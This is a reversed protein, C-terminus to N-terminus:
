VGGMLKRSFFTYDYEAGAGSHGGRGSEHYLVKGGLDSLKAAFKRGGAVHVRDDTRSTQVFMEPYPTGASLNDYPSYTRMIRRDEPDNADGVQFIDIYGDLRQSSVVDLVPVALVVARYLEPRQLAAAGVVTGGASGGTIGLRRPSTIGRAILDESVAIFDDISNQRNRGSGADQWEPGFEGGGRLNPFVYVGGHELWLKGVSLNYHPTLSVGYSGYGDIITPASADEPLDAPGLLYYPVRTGDKSVAQLQTFALGESSFTGSTVLIPEVASTNGDVFWITPPALFSEVQVLLRNRRSDDTIFKFSSAVPLDLKETRWGDDQWKCQMFQAEVDHLLHVFIMDHCVIVGSVSQREAPRLVLHAPTTDPDDIFDHIDISILDGSKMTKEHWDYHLSFVFHSKCTGRIRTRPPVPLKHLKGAVYLSLERQQNTVARVVVCIDDDANGLVTVGFDSAEGRFVETAQDLSQGRKLLKVIFPEGLEVTTGAGWDRAVLLSDNGVWAVSQRCTPLNFGGKRFDRKEIDFERFEAAEGYDATLCLMAHRSDPAFLATNLNWNRDEDSCLWKIDLLNTWQPKGTRLGEFAATRWVGWVNRRPDIFTEFISGDPSFSFRRPYAADRVYQYRDLVEEFAPDSELSDLAARTRSRAWELARESKKDELWSYPDEGEDM